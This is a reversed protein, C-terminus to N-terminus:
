PAIHREYDMHKHLVRIITIGHEQKTYFLIHSRYPFSILGKIFHDRNTGLEPFEALNQALEELGNLYIVTQRVGWSKLTSDTIDQLDSEAQKTFEYRPM